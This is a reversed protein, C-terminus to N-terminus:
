EARIGSLINRSVLDDSSRGEARSHEAEFANLTHLHVRAASRLTSLLGLISCEDFHLILNKNQSLDLDILTNRNGPIEM